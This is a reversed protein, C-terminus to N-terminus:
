GPLYSDLKLRLTNIANESPTSGGVGRIWFRDSIGGNDTEIVMEEPFLSFFALRNLLAGLFGRQDRAKIELYLAGHNSAPEGLTFEDLSIRRSPDSETGDQALALFDINKPDIAFRDPMIEFEATWLTKVKRAAGRVISIRNKSLGSSLNGAWNPPFRGRIKLTYSGSPNKVIECDAPQASSCTGSATKLEQNAM